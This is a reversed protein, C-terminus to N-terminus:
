LAPWGSWASTGRKQHCLPRKIRPLLRYRDHHDFLPRGRSRSTGVGADCWTSFFTQERDRDIRGERVPAATGTSANWSAPTRGAQDAPAQFNSAAHLPRPIRRGRRAQARLRPRPSACRTPAAGALSTMDDASSVDKLRPARRSGGARRWVMRALRTSIWSWSTSPCTPGDNPASFAPGPLLHRSCHRLTATTAGPYEAPLAFERESNVILLRMAVGGGSFTTLIWVQSSSSGALWGGLRPLLDIGLRCVFLPDLV